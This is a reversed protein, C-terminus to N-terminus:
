NGYGRSKVTQERELLLLLDRGSIRATLNGGMRNLQNLPIIAEPGAEGALVPTAKNVIGGHALKPLGILRSFISMFGGGAGSAGGTILTLAAAAAAAAALRKIYNEVWQGMQTFFDKGSILATYFMDNFANGVFDILM